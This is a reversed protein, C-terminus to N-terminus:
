PQQIFEIIDEEKIEGWRHSFYREKVWYGNDWRVYGGKMLFVIRGYITDPVRITDVGQYSWYVTDSLIIPEGITVSDAPIVWYDNTDCNILYKQLWEGDTILITDCHYYQCRVATMLIFYAGFLLLLRIWNKDTTKM